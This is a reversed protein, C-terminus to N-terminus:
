SEAYDFIQHLHVELTRYNDSLNLLSNHMKQKLDLGALYTNAGLRQLSTLLPVYDRDNIMFVFNQVKGSAALMLADCALEMDLGKEARPYLDRYREPLKDLVSTPIPRINKVNIGCEKIQWHGTNGHVPPIILNKIRPDKVRFYYIVRLSSNINEQFADMLRESLIAINLSSSTLEPHDKKIREISQFLFSGDIYYCGNNM